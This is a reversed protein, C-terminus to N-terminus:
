LYDPKIRNLEEEKLMNEYVEQAFESCNQPNRYDLQDALVM